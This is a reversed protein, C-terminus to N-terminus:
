KDAPANTTNGSLAAQLKNWADAMDGFKSAAKNYQAVFATNASPNNTPGIKSLAEQMRTWEQGLDNFRGAVQNFGQVITNREEAMKKLRENQSQIAENQKVINDNAKQFADKYVDIQQQDRQIELTNTEVQKMLGTIQVENSKLIGSLEDRLSTLQAIDGKARRMDATLNTNAQSLDHIADAQQQMKRNQETERVWQFAILGCLCLAFFILLNQLFNKM